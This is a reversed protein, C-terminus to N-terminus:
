SDITVHTLLEMLSAPGQPVDGNILVRARYFETGVMLNHFSPDCRCVHISIDVDPLIEGLYFSVLDKDEPIALGKIEILRGALSGMLHYSDGNIYGATIDLISDIFFTDRLQLYRSTSLKRLATKLKYISIEGTSRYVDDLFYDNEECFYVFEDIPTVVKVPFGQEREIVVSAWDRDIVLDNIVVDM